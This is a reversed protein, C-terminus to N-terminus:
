IARKPLPPPRSPSLSRLRIRGGGVEAGPAMSPKAIRYSVLLDGDAAKDVGINTAWAVEDTEYGGNCGTLLSSVLLVGALSLRFRM